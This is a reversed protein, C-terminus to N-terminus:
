RGDIKAHNKAGKKEEKTLPRKLRMLTVNVDSTLCEPCHDHHLPRNATKKEQERHVVATVTEQAGNLQASSAIRFFDSSTRILKPDIAFDSPIDTIKIRSM